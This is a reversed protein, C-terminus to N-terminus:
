MSSFLTLLFLWCKINSKWLTFVAEIFFLKCPINGVNMNSYKNIILLKPEQHVSPLYMRFEIDSKGSNWEVIDHHFNGVNINVNSPINKLLNINMPSPYIALM